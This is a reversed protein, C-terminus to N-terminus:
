EGQKVLYVQVGEGWRRVMEQEGQKVLYVQVGRGEGLLAAAGMAVGALSLKPMFFGLGAMDPQMLVRRIFKLGPGAETGPTLPPSCGLLLPPNPWSQRM